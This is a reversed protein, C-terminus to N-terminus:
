RRAMTPQAAAPRAIVRNQSTLGLRREAEARLALDNSHPFGAQEWLQFALDAIQQEHEPAPM